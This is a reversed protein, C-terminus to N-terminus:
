LPLGRALTGWAPLSATPIGPLGAPLGAIGVPLDNMLQIPLDYVDDNITLGVRCDGAGGFAAADEPNLCLYPTPSRDAVAPAQASLEESGFVYYLPLVLWEQSRRQFAAPVEVAYIPIATPAPEILRVGPDGGRLPGGVESQFKATAAVSNWRPAWYVPILAAPPPNLAGEMSFAFPSDRDTPPRHESIHEQAHIATRGSARHPERPIKQGFIRFNANPAAEPISHLLPVTQACAATVDDLRNWGSAPESGRIAAIDRVWRWSEQVNESPGVTSFFRQARAESSVFTGSGEAFTAAPLRCDAMATTNNATHDIVIM